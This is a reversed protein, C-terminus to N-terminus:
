HNFLLLWSTVKRELFSSSVPGSFWQAKALSGEEKERGICGKRRTRLGRRFGQWIRLVLALWVGEVSGEKDRTTSSAGQRAGCILLTPASRPGPEREFTLWEALGPAVPSGWLRADWVETCLWPRHLEYNLDDKSFFNKKQKKRIM